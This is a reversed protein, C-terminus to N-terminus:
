MCTVSEGAVDGGGGKMLQNLPVATLYSNPPKREASWGVNKNRGPTLHNMRMSPLSCLGGGQGEGQALIHLSIPLKRGWEGEDGGGVRSALQSIDLCEALWIM